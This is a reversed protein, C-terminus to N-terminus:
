PAKTAQNLILTSLVRAPIPRGFKGACCRWSIAFSWADARLRLIVFQAFRVISKYLFSALV